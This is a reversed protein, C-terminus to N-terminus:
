MGVREQLSFLNLRDMKVPGATDRFFDNKHLVGYVTRKGDIGDTYIAVQHSCRVAEAPMIGPDGTDQTGSAVGTFPIAVVHDFLYRWQPKDQAIFSTACYQALM